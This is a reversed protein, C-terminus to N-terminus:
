LLMEGDRGGWATKVAAKAGDSINNGNLWLQTLGPAAPLARALAETGARKAPMLARM